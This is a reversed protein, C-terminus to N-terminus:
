GNARGDGVLDLQGDGVVDGITRQGLLPFHTTHAFQMINHMIYLRLLPINGQTFTRHSIRRLFAEANILAYVGCDFGNEQQNSRRDEFQFDRNRLPEAAM